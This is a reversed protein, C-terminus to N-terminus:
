KLGGPTHVASAGTGLHGTATFDNGILTRKVPENGYRCQVRSGLMERAWSGQRQSLGSTGRFHNVSKIFFSVRVPAKNWVVRRKKDLDSIAPQRGV